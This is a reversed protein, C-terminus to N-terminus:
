GGTESLLIENVSAAGTLLLDSRGDGDFDDVVAENVPSRSHGFLLSESRGLWITLDGAGRSSVIDTQGDGDFDGVGVQHAGELRPDDIVRIPALAQGRYFPQRDLARGELLLLEGEAPRVFHADASLRQRSWRGEHDAFAVVVPGRGGAIRERAVIDSRGDHDLDLIDVPLDVNELVDEVSAATLTYPGSGELAVDYAIMITGARGFAFDRRGDGDFDAIGIPGALPESLEAPYLLQTVRLEGDEDHLLFYTPDSTGVEKFMVEERGDDDLDFIGAPFWAGPEDVDLSVARIQPRASTPAAVIKFGEDSIVVVEARGDGDLDAGEWAFSFSSRWREVVRPSRHVELHSASLSTETHAIIELRGDGDVDMLTRRENPLRFRDIEGSFGSAGYITALGGTQDIYTLDPLGDDDVQTLTLGSLIETPETPHLLITPEEGGLGSLSAFGGESLAIVEPSGDLDSDGITLAAVWGIQEEVEALDHRPGEAYTPGDRRLVSIVKTKPDLPPGASVVILEDEGDLDLDGAEVLSPTRDAVLTAELVFTGSPDPRYLDLGLRDHRTDYDVVRTWGAGRLLLTRPSGSTLSTLGPSLEFEGSADGNVVLAERKTQVWLDVDGDGDFDAAHVEEVGSPGLSSLDVSAAETFAGSGDGLLIVLDDRAAVLDVDGDDNLDAALVSGVTLPRAPPESPPEDEDALEDEDVAEFSHQWRLTPVPGERIDFFEKGQYANQVLLFPPAPGITGDFIGRIGLRVKGGELTDGDVLSLSLLEGDTHGIGGLGDAGPPTIMLRKGGSREPAVELPLEHLPGLGAAGEGLALWRDTGVGLIALDLDGDGDIDGLALETVGPALGFTVQEAFGGSGDGYLLTLDGSLFDLTALDLAADGNLDGIKVVFPSEGVAIRARTRDGLVVSLAGELADATVLDDLGDGDLDAIALSRPGTGLEITDLHEVKRDQTVRYLDLQPPDESAVAIEERLGDGDLDGAVLGIAPGPLEYNATSGVRDSVILSARGTKVSVLLDETGVRVRAAHDFAYATQVWIPEALCVEDVCPEPGCAAAALLMAIVRLSGREFLAGM